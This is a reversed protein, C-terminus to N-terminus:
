QLTPFQRPPTPRSYTASGNAAQHNGAPSNKETVMVLEVSRKWSGGMLGHM